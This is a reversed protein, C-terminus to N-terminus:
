FSMMREELSCFTAAPRPELIHPPREDADGGHMELTSSKHAFVISNVSSSVPSSTPSSDRVSARSSTMSSSSSSSSLSRRFSTRLNHPTFRATLSQFRSNNM